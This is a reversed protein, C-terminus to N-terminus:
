RPFVKCEHTQGQKQHSICDIYSTHEGPKYNILHCVPKKLHNNCALLDNVKCFELVRTGEEKRSDFNYDRHVGSFVNAHKGAYHNFDWVM